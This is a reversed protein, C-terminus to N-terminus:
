VGFFSNGASTIGGDNSMGGMFGGLGSAASGAGGGLGLLGPVGPIGMVTGALGALNGLGGLFGGLGTNASNWGQQGMQAQALQKLYDWYQQNAQLGQSAQNGAQRTGFEYPNLANQYFKQQDQSVIGQINKDLAEQEQPTGAYGGAAAAKNAANTAQDTQYKAWPSEKYQSMVQNEYGVGGNGLLNKIADSYAGSAWEGHQMYPDIHKPMRNYTDIAQNYPNSGGGFLGGLM